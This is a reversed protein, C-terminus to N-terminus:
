KLGYHIMVESLWWSAISLKMGTPDDLNVKSSKDRACYMKSSTLKSIHHSM